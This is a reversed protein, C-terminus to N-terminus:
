LVLSIQRAENWLFVVNRTKIALFVGFIILLAPIISASIVYWVQTHIGRCGVWQFARINIMNPEPADLAMEVM